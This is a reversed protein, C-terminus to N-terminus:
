AARSQLIKECIVNEYDADFVTGQLKIELSLERYYVILYKINFTQDLWYPM